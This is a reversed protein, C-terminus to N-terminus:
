SYYLLFTDNQCQTTDDDRTERMIDTIPIVTKILWSQDSFSKFNFHITQYTHLRGCVNYLMYEINIEFYEADRSKM